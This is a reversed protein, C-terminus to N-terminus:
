HDTTYWYLCLVDTLQAIHAGCSYPRISAAADDSPLTFTLNSSVTAGSKIAVYHSNDNDFLRLENRTGSLSKISIDGVAHTDGALQITEATDVNTTISSDANLVIGGTNKNHLVGGNLIFQDNGSTSSGEGSAIVDTVYKLENGTFRWQNNM